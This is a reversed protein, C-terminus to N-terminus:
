RERNSCPSRSRPVEIAPRPGTPLLARHRAIGCARYMARSAAARRAAAAAPEVRQQDADSRIELVQGTVAGLRQLAQRQEHHRGSGARREGQDGRAKLDRGCAGAGRGFRAGQLDRGPLLGLVRHRQDGGPQLRAGPHRRTRDAGHGHGVPETRREEQTELPHRGAARNETVDLTRRASRMRLSASSTARSRAAAWAASRTTAATAFPRSTPRVSPSTARSIRSRRTASPWSCASNEITAEPGLLADGCWSGPWRRMAPPSGMTMSM